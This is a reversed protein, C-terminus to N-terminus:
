LSTRRALHLSLTHHTHYSTNIYSISINGRCFFDFIFAFLFAIYKFIFNTLLHLKDIYVYIVPLNRSLFFILFLLTHILQLNSFSYHKNELRPESPQTHQTYWFRLCYELYWPTRKFLDSPRTHHTYSTNIYSISISIHMCLLFTGWCFFHFFLLM